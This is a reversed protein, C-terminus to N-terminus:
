VLLARASDEAIWDVLDWSAQVHENDGYHVQAFALKRGRVVAPLKRGDPLKVRIDPLTTRAREARERVTMGKGRIDTGVPVVGL